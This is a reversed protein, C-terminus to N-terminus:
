FKIANQFSLSSVYLSRPILAERCFVGQCKDSVPQDTATWTEGTFVALGLDVFFSAADGRTSVLGKVGLAHLLGLAAPSSFPGFFFTECIPTQAGKVGTWVKVQM